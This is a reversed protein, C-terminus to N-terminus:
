LNLVPLLLLLLLVLLLLLLLLLLWLWWQLLLWLLLLLLLLLMGASLQHVSTQVQGQLRLLHTKREILWGRGRILWVYDYCRIIGRTEVTDRQVLEEKSVNM